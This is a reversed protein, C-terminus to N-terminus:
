LTLFALLLVILVVSVTGWKVLGTFLRYTELHAPYDMGEHGLGSRQFPVTESM